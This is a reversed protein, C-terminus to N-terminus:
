RERRYEMKEYLKLPIISVFGYDTFTDIHRKHVLARLIREQSIHELVSCLLLGLIHRDDGKIYYNDIYFGKGSPKLPIFGQVGAVDDVAIFWLYGKGTKFPYNNNQRLVAPSMVLPAVLQYLQLDTGNLTIIKM